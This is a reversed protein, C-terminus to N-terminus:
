ILLFLEKSFQYSTVWLPFKEEIYFDGKKILFANTIYKDQWINSLLAIISASAAIDNFALSPKVPDLQMFQHYISAASCVANKMM